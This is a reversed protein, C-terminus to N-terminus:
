HFCRPDIKSRTGSAHDRSSNAVTLAMGQNFLADAEHRHILAILAPWTKHCRCRFSWRRDRTYADQVAPRVSGLTPRSGRKAIGSIAPPCRYLSEIRVDGIKRLGADNFDFFSRLCILDVDRDALVASIGHRASDDISFASVGM